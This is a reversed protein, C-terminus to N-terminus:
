NEKAAAAAVAKGLDLKAAKVSFTTSQRRRIKLHALVDDELMKLADLNLHTEVRVYPTAKFGPTRVEENALLALSLEENPVELAPPNAALKVIGYPTTLTAKNEFWQPNRRALVELAGETDSLAQQLRAYDAKHEDVIELQSGNAAAQIAALQNSAESFVALLDVLNKFDPGSGATATETRDNDTKKM